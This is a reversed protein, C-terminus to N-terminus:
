VYSCLYVQVVQLRARLVHVYCIRYVDTHLAYAYARLYVGFVELRESHKAPLNPVPTHLTPTIPALSPPIRAVSPQAEDVEAGGVEPRQCYFTNEDFTNEIYHTREENEPRQKL